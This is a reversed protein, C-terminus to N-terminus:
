PPPYRRCRHWHWIWRDLVNHLPNRAMAIFLTGRHGVIPADLVCKELLFPTKYLYSNIWSLTLFQGRTTLIQLWFTLDHWGLPWLIIDNFYSQNGLLLIMDVIYYSFSIMFTLYVFVLDSKHQNFTIVTWVFLRFLVLTLYLPLLFKDFYSILSTLFATCLIYSIVFTLISCKDLLINWQYSTMYETLYELLLVYSVIFYSISCWITLCINTYEFITLYM